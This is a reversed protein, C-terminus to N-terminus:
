KSMDSVYGLQKPIRSVDLCTIVVIDQKKSTEWDFLGLTFENFNSGFFAKQSLNPCPGIQEIPKTLKTQHKVHHHCSFYLPDISNVQSL